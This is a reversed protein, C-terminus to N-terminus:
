GSLEIIFGGQEQLHQQQGVSLMVTPESHCFRCEKSTVAGDPEGLSAVYEKALRLATTEDTAVVDFHRRGHGSGVWTDFVHVTDPIMRQM